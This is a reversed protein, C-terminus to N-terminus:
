VFRCKDSLFFGSVCVVGVVSICMGLAYARLSGVAATLRHKDYLVVSILCSFVYVVCVICYM